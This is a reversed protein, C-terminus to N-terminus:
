TFYNEALKWNEFYEQKIMLRVINFLRPENRTVISHILKKTKNINQFFVFLTIFLSM